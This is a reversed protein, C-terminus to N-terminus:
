WIPKSNKLFPLLQDKESVILEGADLLWDICLDPDDYKIGGESEAFYYNDCKYNFISTDSLVVFGHAFGRPIFLQKSNDASIVISFHQGFTLSEPRIDVVVDLIEGRVVRVLKAQAFDGCQYHLGRIVGYTSHSQNDQIFHLNLGTKENFLRENFSEMFSGREDYYIQPEIIFCGPLPTPTIKM